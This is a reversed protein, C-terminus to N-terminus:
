IWKGVLIGLGVSAVAAVSVGVPTDPAIKSTIAPPFALGAVAAPILAGGGLLMGGLGAAVPVALALPFDAYLGYPGAWGYPNPGDGPAGVRVIPRAAGAPAIALRPRASLLPM